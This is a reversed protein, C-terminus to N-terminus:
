GQGVELRLAKEALAFLVVVTPAHAIDSVTAENEGEGEGEGESEGEGEGEGERLQM